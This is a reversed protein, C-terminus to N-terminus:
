HDAHLVNKLNVFAESWSRHWNKILKDRYDSLAGMSLPKVLDAEGYTDVLVTTKKALEMLKWVYFSTYHKFDYASGSLLSVIEKQRVVKIIKVIYPQPEGADDSNSIRPLSKSSTMKLVQDEMLGSGDQYSPGSVVEIAYESYWRRMDKVVPWVESAPVDLTLETHLVWHMTAIQDAEMVKQGEVSSM